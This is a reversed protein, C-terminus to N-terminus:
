AVAGGGGPVNIVAFNQDSLKEEQIVRASIRALTDWGGGPNAPAIYEVPQTPKWGSAMASGAAAGAVFAVSVTRCFAGTKKLSFHGLM